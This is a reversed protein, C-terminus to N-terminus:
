QVSGAPPIPLLQHGPAVHIFEVPEAGAAHIMEDLSKSIVDLRGRMVAISVLVANIPVDEGFDRRLSLNLADMGADAAKWAAATIWLADTESIGISELQKSLKQLLNDGIDGIDM